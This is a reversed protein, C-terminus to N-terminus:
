VEALSANVAASLREANARPLAIYSGDLAASLQKLQPEPRNSMDIVLAPVGNTRIVGACALADDAAQARGATGDLGVNARGDTILVITPTLGKARGAQAMLAAEQLGHALPTGGGGPLAALRKKTQVLSKTPPLLVDAGTGKFAILAVHDRTAYAQALLLEIAGKAEGLRSVATSGSADVAFVLLRDSREQYRKVRIDSPRIHLGDADPRQKARVSQWPAAARLTAVLDIRHTGDLKGPQSPLPRGRRNSARKLGAGSGAAKRTTGAPVLAALVDAPLVAKVADVLMDGDPLTDHKANGDDVSDPETQPQTDETTEEEPPAPFHLARPALVLAASVDLDTQEVSRRGHLAAHARAAKIALQPARLSTIGLQYALTTLAEIQEGTSTVNAVSGIPTGAPVHPAVSPIRDDFAVHFALRDSLAPPCGEDADAGEDLAVICHHPHKDLALALKAALAPSCSEAMTLLLACPASIIGTTEIIQGTSLTAAIDIGGFLQEDSINPHIKRLPLPIDVLGRVLTDRAPGARMRIVAGGLGVPDVALLAMALQARHWNAAADTM